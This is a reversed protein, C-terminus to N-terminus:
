QAPDATRLDATNRAMVRVALSRPLIRSMVVAAVRNTAGPIVRPGSGLSDLSCQAVRDPTLTGPARRRKVAGLKDDAIAGAACGIVHVGKPAYEQWLGEALVLDFAKTAAYTTLLPSGQLGAISSMIVMGGRGRAAMLPLFAHALRLTGACNVAVALALHEPASDAFPGIPVTAANAVVMGVRRGTCMAVIREVADPEGLDVPLTIVEVGHENHLRQALGVLPDPRRAVLVLHLGRRALENSFAAGLGESAGAVVAWEGYHGAFRRGYTRM